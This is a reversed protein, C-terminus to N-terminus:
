RPKRLRPEPGPKSRTRRKRDAAETLAPEPRVPADSNTLLDLARRLITAAQSRDNTTMAEFDLDLTVNPREERFHRRERGLYEYSDVVRYTAVPYAIGRVEIEGHEECRIRDRVHAFTEYSVLIEGPLASTELRSATNVGGGIITYDLRDESGFNGVTCYGTHIGM